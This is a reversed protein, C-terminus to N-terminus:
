FLTSALVVAVRAVNMLGSGAPFSELLNADAGIYLVGSVGIATSAVFLTAMTLSSLVLWRTATPRELSRLISVSMDQCAYLYSVGGVMSCAGRPTTTYVIDTVNARPGDAQATQITAVAVLSLAVMLCVQNLLSPIELMGVSKTYCPAGFIAVALILINSRSYWRGGFDNALTADPSTGNYFLTHILPPATSGIVQLGGVMGGWNLVLIVACAWVHGVKGLGLHCLEVFTHVGFRLCLDYVLWLTFLNMVGFFAFVATTLLIGGQGFYFPSAVIGVAVVDNVLNITAMPLNSLRKTQRSYGSAGAGAGGVGGGDGHLAATPHQKQQQRGEQHTALLPTTDSADGACQLRAGEVGESISGIRDADDCSANISLGGHGHSYHSGLRPVAARVEQVFPPTPRSPAQASSTRSRAHRPSAAADARWRRVEYGGPGGGGDDSVSDGASEPDTVNEVLRSDIEAEQLQAGFAELLSDGVVREFQTRDAIYLLTALMKDEADRRTGSTRSYFPLPTNLLVRQGTVATHPAQKVATSSSTAGDAHAGGSSHQSPQQQM